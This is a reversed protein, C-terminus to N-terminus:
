IERCYLTCRQASNLFRNLYDAGVSISSNHSPIVILTKNEL